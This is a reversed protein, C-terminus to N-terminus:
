NKGSATASSLSRWAKKEGLMITQYPATTEWRIKDPQAVLMVGETKLPAAFLKLERVQTFEMFVTKSHAARKQFNDLIARVDANTSIENTAASAALALASLFIAAFFKM